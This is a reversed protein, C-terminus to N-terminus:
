YQYRKELYELWENFEGTSNNERVFQVWEQHTWTKFLSKGDFIKGWESQFDKIGTSRLCNKLDSNREDFAVTSAVLSYRGSAIIGEGLAQQRFLQYGATAAPCRKLNDKGFDSLDLLDWYKRGWDTQHCISKYNYGKASQMCREPKPNGKRKVTDDKTRASCTYFSHETFKCETLVIGEGEKTKVIFAVDPSTQGSGRTGDKEGLLIFPHLDDNDSFAFELDVEKIETIKDSVKQKLFDVMLKNLSSNVRIPFYLNACLVWSSLLNHTGSHHNVGKDKLYDGLDDKIGKWLTKTWLGKPIVHEHKEGNQYGWLNSNINPVGNTKTYRWSIQHKRQESIYKSIKSM